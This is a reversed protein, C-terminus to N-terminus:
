RRASTRFVPESRREIERHRAAIPADWETDTFLWFQDKVIADHVQDAVEAPDKGAEVLRRAVEIFRAGGRDRETTAAGPRNRESDVIRTAVFGPCLCTVGVRSGERRLEHHLTESLTAVAHKSVNYPAGYPSSVHGAISATTVVHGEDHEVLHPVFTRLGHIVGWLNVDLTWHWDDESLSWSKGNAGSVGANLCVVHVRGYAALAERLLTEHDGAVGVDCRVGRVEAGGDRLEAVAADLAAEEIDAAVVRMGARAFRACFAKGMGSAGGTVVATKGDLDQM